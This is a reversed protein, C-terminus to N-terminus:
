TFIIASILGGKKINSKKQIEVIQNYFLYFPLHVWLSESM